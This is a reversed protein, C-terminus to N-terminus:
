FDTEAAVDFPSAQDGDQQNRSACRVRDGLVQDASYNYPRRLMHEAVSGSPSSNRSFSSLRPVLGTTGFRLLLYSRESAVLAEVLKM